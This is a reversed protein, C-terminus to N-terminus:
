LMVVFPVIGKESDKENRFVPFHDPSANIPRLADLLYPLKLFSM